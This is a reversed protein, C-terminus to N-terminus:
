REESQLGASLRLPDLKALGHENWTSPRNTDVGQLPSPTGNRSVLRLLIGTQVDALIRENWSEFGYDPSPDFVELTGWASTGLCVVTHGVRADFGSELVHEESQKFFTLALVGAPHEGHTLDQPSVEEVVVDWETNATKIKLGRFVGLWHTGQRTLCLRALEAETAPIGHLRLLGAACAASCTQPTTQYDLLRGGTAISGFEPAQGLLPSVLSYCCLCGLAAGLFMRRAWVIKETCICIGVFFAGVPPLWNGLVIASSFPLVQILLPRDWIWVMYAAMLGTVTIQALLVIKRDARKQLHAGSVAATLCLIIMGCLSLLLDFM